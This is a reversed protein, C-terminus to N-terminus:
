LDFDFELLSIYLVARKGTEQKFETALEVDYFGANVRILWLNVELGYSVYGESWGFFGRVIPLGLEM